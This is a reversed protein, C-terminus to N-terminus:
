TLKGGLSAFRVLGKPVCDLTGFREQVENLTRHRVLLRVDQGLTETLVHAKTQGPTQQM